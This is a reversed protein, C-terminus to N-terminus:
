RIMANKLASTIAGKSTMMPIDKWCAVGDANTKLSEAVKEFIKKKPSCFPLSPSLAARRATRAPDM